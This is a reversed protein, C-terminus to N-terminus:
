PNRSAISAATASTNGARSPSVTPPASQRPVGKAQGGERAVQLGSVIVQDGPELGSTVIWDNGHSEAATVNKRLVKGQPGVVLAYAGVTDRQLAEQPILYVNSQQGLTVKLTVYMGPLLQHKPNPVIARLNVAGTTPNVAVDSFDLTGAQDYQSGNPLTVHVPTDNQKALEVNQAQRLTV